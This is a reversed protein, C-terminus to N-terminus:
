IIYFFQFISLLNHERNRQSLLTTLLCLGRKYPCTESPSHHIARIFSCQPPRPIPSCRHNNLTLVHCLNRKPAGRSSDHSNCRHQIQWRTIQLHAAFFIITTWIIITILLWRILFFLSKLSLTYYAPKRKIKQVGMNLNRETRQKEKQGACTSSSSKTHLESHPATM